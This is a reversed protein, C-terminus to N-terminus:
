IFIKIEIDFAEDLSTQVAKCLPIYLNLLWKTREDLMGLGGFGNSVLFEGNYRHLQLQGSWEKGLCKGVNLFYGNIKIVNM